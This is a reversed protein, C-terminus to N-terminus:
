IEGKFTKYTINMNFQCALAINNEFRIASLGKIYDQTHIVCSKDM